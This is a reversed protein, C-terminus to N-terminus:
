SFLFLVVDLAADLYEWDKLWELRAPSAVKYFTVVIWSFNEDGAIPQKIEFLYLKQM